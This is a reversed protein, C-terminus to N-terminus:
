DAPVRPDMSVAGASSCAARPHTRSRGCLVLLTPARQSNVRRWAPPIKGMHALTNSSVGRSQGPGTTSRRLLHAGAIWQSSSCALMSRDRRGPLPPVHAPHNRAFKNARFTAFIAFRNKLSFRTLSKRSVRGTGEKYLPHPFPTAFFCQLAKKAM